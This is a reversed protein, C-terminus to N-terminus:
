VGVLALFDSEGIIRITSGKAIMAEAKRHKSSKGTTGVVRIDQDGVVLITTERTVGDHVDCGAAAAMAAADIRLMSLRGTFVVAEAALPGAPDGNTAARGNARDLDIPQEVRTFWAELDMGTESIARLLILGAARADERADHHAFGIGFQDALPRLGYGSRAVHSWARRAVRASDLWRCELSPGGHREAARQIAVRDFHTHHIVVSGALARCMVPLVEAMAPAGKVMEPRIGHIGVNLMDFRDQPDVLFHMAGVMQGAAFRCLGIACISAMDANATEVDVSIFDM